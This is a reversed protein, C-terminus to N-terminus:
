QYFQIKEGDYFKWNEKVTFNQKILDYFRIKILYNNFRVPPWELIVDALPSPDPSRIDSASTMKPHGRIHM